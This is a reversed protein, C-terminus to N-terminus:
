ERNRGALARKLKGLLLMAQQRYTHADLELIQQIHPYSFGLAKALLVRRDSKPMEIILCALDVLPMIPISGGSHALHPDDKLKRVIRNVQVRLTDPKKGFVVGLESFKYGGVVTAIVLRQLTVPLHLGLRIFQSLRGFEAEQVESDVVSVEPSPKTFAVTDGEELLDATKHDLNARKRLEGKVWNILFGVVCGPGQYVFGGQKVMRVFRLLAEQMADEWDDYVGLESAKRRAYRCVEAGSSSGWWAEMAANREEPYEKSLGELLAQDQQADLRSQKELYTM